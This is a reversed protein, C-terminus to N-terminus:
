ISCASTGCNPCTKCGEQFVMITSCNSCVNSKIKYGDLIGDQTGVRKVRTIKDINEVYQSWYGYGENIQPLDRVDILGFDKSFFSPLFDKLAQCNERIYETVFESPKLPDSDPRTTIHLIQENRSGDRYISLGKCGLQHALLYSEKIDQVTANNPFNITNHSIIGDILYSHTDEVEIDYVESESYEKNTVKYYFLDKDYKANCRQLLFQSAKNEYKLVHKLYKDDSSEIGEISTMKMSETLEVDKHDEIPTLWNADVTVGYAYYDQPKGKYFVLKQGKYCTMGNLYLLSAVEDRLQKSVGEYIVLQIHNKSRKVYGDLTLGELFAKQEEKSGKLIQIPIHKNKANNGVMEIFMKCLPRSTIFLSDLNERRKDHRIKPMKGFIKQTLESFIRKVKDNNAVIGVHGSKISLSGDSVIMGLFKALDPTMKIPINYKNYSTYKENMYKFINPLELGGQNEINYESRRVAVFDGENLEGLTKWGNDTMVRHIFTGELENGNNLRIKVTRKKGGSYHKIVKRWNGKLDRVKLDSNYVDGFVDEGVANGIDEIKMLGKNTQVLTGKAICKSISNDVYKQWVSQAYVHDAWHMGIATVFTDQVWQPIESIGECTSYNNIIKQLIEPKYVGEEKLVKVFTENWYEYKNKQADEKLYYLGFLPEIGSTCDSIMSITGTPAETGVWCNRLGSEKFTELIEASLAIKGRVKNELITIPDKEKGEILKIWNPAAGREYGMIISETIAAEYMTRAIREMLEYGEKSNYRVRMKFLCDALGMIGIGIRRFSKSTQEIRADPYVSISVVNDLGRTLERSAQYFKEFNFSRDSKNVFKSLNISALTCADNPYLFVEGCPNTVSMNGYMEKFPNGENANDIYLIGPEASAHASEAIVVMLERASQEGWKTGDRPNILDYKQDSFFSQWYDENMCVSINFNTLVSMDKKCKIFKMIDPHNHDLGALNAGRRGTGSKIEKTIHDIIRLFSIPGSAANVIDGVKDGEPRLESANVGVGGAKKYIQMIRSNLDGLELLDDKMPLVFCANGGGLPRGFNMLVPTNFMYEQNCMRHYYKYWHGNIGFYEDLLSLIYPDRHEIMIPVKSCHMQLSLYILRGVHYQNLNYKDFLDKNEDYFGFGQVKEDITLPFAHGTTDKSAFLSLFDVITLTKAVREFLNHPQELAVKVKEGNPLIEEKCILYRNKLVNLANISFSKSVPHMEEESINLIKAKKARIEARQDRFRIFEKAERYLGRRMLVTEILDQIDEVGIENQPMSDIIYIVENTVEEVKKTDLNDNGHVDLFAGLIANCIKVNDLAQKSHDRKLILRTNNGM